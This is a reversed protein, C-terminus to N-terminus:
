AADCSLLISRTLSPCIPTLPLPSPSHPSCPLTTTRPLYNDHMFLNLLFAPGPSRTTKKIAFFIPHTPNSLARPASKPVM